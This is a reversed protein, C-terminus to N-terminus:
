RHRGSADPWPGRRRTRREADGSGVTSGRPRTRAHGRWPHVGPDRTMIALVRAHVAQGVRMNANTTGMGAVCTGAVIVAFAMTGLRSAHITAHDDIRMRTNEKAASECCAAYWCTGRPCGTGRRTILPCNAPSLPGVTVSINSLHRSATVAAPSCQRAHGHSRAGAQGPRRRVGSAPTTTVGPAVPVV